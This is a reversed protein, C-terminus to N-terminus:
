CYVDLDGATPIRTLVSFHLARHYSFMLIRNLLIWLNVLLIIFTVDFESLSDRERYVMWVDGTVTSFLIITSQGKSASESLLAHCGVIVPTPLAAGATQM